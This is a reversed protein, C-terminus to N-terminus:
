GGVTGTVTDGVVPPLPDTVPAPVTVPPVTVPPLTIEPGTPVPRAAASGADALVLASLALAAVVAGARTRRGTRHGSRRAM